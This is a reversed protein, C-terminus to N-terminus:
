QCAIYTELFSTSSEPTIVLNEADAPILITQGQQVPLTNDKNDFFIAKGHTCIYIKFSYLSIFDRQVPQSLNLLNTTFYPCQVLTVAENEVAHYTMKYDPCVTYDIADKAWETHLARENGNADKRNYDYIRYTIDSTQQIEAIFCGAGIAHIRGAPLFFVDGTKVSYKQLVEIISGENIRRVYEDADIQQSFGSYIFADPTAELIYWMETKGFSQHRQRALQDSPHVQISLNENADIFKVLLPFTYGFKQFVNDGLLQSGYQKILVDITTGALLGNAVVSFNNEVHSLEWSEAISYRDTPLGKFPLIKKGGWLYEKYVPKFTFM